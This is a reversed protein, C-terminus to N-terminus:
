QQRSITKLAQFAYVDIVIYIAIFIIWRMM